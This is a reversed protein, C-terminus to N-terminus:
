HEVPLLHSFVIREDATRDLSGFVESKQSASALINAIDIAGALPMGRNDSARDRM